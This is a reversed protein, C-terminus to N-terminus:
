KTEENSLQKDLNIGWIEAIKTDVGKLADSLVMITKFVKTTKTLVKYTGSIINIFGKVVSLVKM